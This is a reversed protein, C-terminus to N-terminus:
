SAVVRMAADAKQIKDAAIAKADDKKYNLWKLLSNFGETGASLFIITTFRHIFKGPDGQIFPQLVDLGACAVILWAFLLSLLSFTAKKLKVNKDFEENLACISGIVEVAQQVAFGAVFPAALAKIYEAAM